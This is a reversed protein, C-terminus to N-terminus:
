GHPKQPDAEEMRAPETASPRVVDRALGAPPRGQLRDGWHDAGVATADALKDGDVAAARVLLGLGDLEYVFGDGRLRIWARAEEIAADKSEHVTEDAGHRVVWRGGDTPRVRVTFVDPVVVGVHVPPRSTAENTPPLRRVLASAQASPSRVLRDIIDELDYRLDSM